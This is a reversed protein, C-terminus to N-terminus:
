KIDFPIEITLTKKALEPKKIYLNMYSLAQFFGCNWSNMIKRMTVGEVNFDSDITRDVIYSDLVNQLSADCNALNPIARDVWIETYRKDEMMIRKVVEKDFFLVKREEQKCEQKNEGDDAPAFDGAFAVSSLMLAAMLSIGVKKFMYKGRRNCYMKVHITFM